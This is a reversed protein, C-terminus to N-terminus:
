PQREGTATNEVVRVSLAEPRVMRRVTREICVQYYREASRREIWRGGWVALAGLATGAVCELLGSM